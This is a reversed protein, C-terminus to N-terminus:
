DTEKGDKTKMIVLASLADERHYFTKAYNRNLTRRMNWNLFWVSIMWDKERKRYINYGLDSKIIRYEWM